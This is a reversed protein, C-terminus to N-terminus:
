QKEVQTYVFTNNCSAIKKTRNKELIAFMILLYSIFRIVYIVPHDEQFHLELGMVIRNVGEIGFSLAFFLFFRDKTQKWFRLFFLGAMLSAFAIAGLLMLNM